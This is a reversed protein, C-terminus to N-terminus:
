HAGISPDPALDEILQRYARVSAEVSFTSARAILAPPDHSRDLTSLMARALADPDGPPVLPGWKGGELVESPGSPCDTSVVPTGCAMAQILVNPMGENVSSLVFLRAKAMFALPNAHFGPFDVLHEVGLEFTLRVLDRRLTGEGLVVLRLDQREATLAFARILTPYDKAPELRGASLIVPTQQERFWPHQVPLAAQRALGPDVVPNHITRVLHAAAPLTRRADDSTGVSNAVIGDARPLLMAQVKKITRRKLNAGAFGATLNHPLRALLRFRPALPRAVSALIVSSAGNALVVDPRATHVYRVLKVLSTMATRSPLPVLRVIPSIRQRWPGEGRIVVIDVSHGAACLGNALDVMAREAGGGELTPM